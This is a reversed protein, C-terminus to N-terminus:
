PLNQGSAKVLLDGGIAADAFSGDLKVSGVKHLLQPDGGGVIEDTESGSLWPEVGSALRRIARTSTRKSQPARQDVLTMLTGALQLLPAPKLICWAHLDRLQERAIDQASSLYFIIPIFENILRIERALLRGDGSDRGCGIMVIDYAEPARQFSNLAIEPETRRVTEYGCSQLLDGTLQLTASDEDVFLVCPRRDDVPKKNFSLGM